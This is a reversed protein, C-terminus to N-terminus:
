KSLVFGIWLLFPLVVVYSRFVFCFTVFGPSLKVFTLLEHCEILRTAGSYSRFVSVFVFHVEINNM